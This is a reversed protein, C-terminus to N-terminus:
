KAASISLLEPNVVCAVIETIKASRKDRFGRYTDIEFTLLSPDDAYENVLLHKGIKVGARKLRSFYSDPLEARKRINDTAGVFRYNGMANVESTPLGLQTKLAHQPYIHDIHPENGYYRVKFPSIGFVETYVLNLIIYRLRMDLSEDEHTEVELRRSERFYRKVEEMPFGDSKKGLRTHMANIINDTQARFWGFLQAKYHFGKMLLRDTENPKPNHYLYDFLPVFSNFTRVSKSSYLRLEHEVFDALQKFADEARSWSDEIQDLLEEGAKGVFKEASLEAGKGHAVVLCKLVLSKDFGLQSGNLMRAIEEVREEIDAWQEKMAAFMLDAADLRTGGSNVRVFIDLVTRYPFEDAVGDLEQVWFHKDERLLSSLQAINARVRRQRLRRDDDHDFDLEDFRDNLDDAITEANERADRERLDRLRYWTDGPREAAFELPHRLGDADAENGAAVDAWAELMPSDSSKAISGGFLTYLTQLRQQGDLVFTKEVGEVSMGPEYYDSLDADWVVEDMFRRAKIGDKTRWFLLTQIPYNRMLSDFLRKMQDQEWVFPRQIHPLFLKSNIDEIIRFLSRPKYSM